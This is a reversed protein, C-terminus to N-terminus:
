GRQSLWNKWWAALALGPIKAYSKHGHSINLFRTYVKPGKVVSFIRNRLRNRYVIESFSKALRLEYLVSRLNQKYYEYLLTYKGSKLCALIARHACEASKHAYYIGEGSYADTLGAADGIILTRESEYPGTLIESPILHAKCHRLGRPDLEAVESLFGKFNRYM